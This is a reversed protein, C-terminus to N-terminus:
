GGVFARLFHIVHESSGPFCAETLSLAVIFSGLLLPVSVAAILYGSILSSRYLARVASAFLIFSLGCFIRFLNPFVHLLWEDPRAYGTALFQLISLRGELLYNCLYMAGMLTTIPASSYVISAFVAGPSAPLHLARFFMTAFFTAFALTLLLTVLSAYLALIAKQDIIGEPQYLLPPTIVVTCFLFLATLVHPPGEHWHLLEYMTGRPDVVIALFLDLLRPRKRRSTAM